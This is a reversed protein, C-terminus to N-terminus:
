IIHSNVQEETPISPQAGKKTCAISAAKSGYAAADEISNGNSIMACLGGCFTDGAATTDVVDVKICPYIKESTKNVIKYGRGGLTVILSDAYSLLRDEGGLLATESENTVIINCYKLYKEIQKDVPAPNLVVKMGKSSAQKLAYGIVDVPNELQALFIDGEDAKSLFADVDAKGLLDNAGKDIIIRNDGDIVVVVAVGTPANGVIKVCDANVGVSKLYKLYNKGQEDDGVCGCMYVKGSLKSCAVAQNAGKGGYATFFGNGCVTEGREPMRQANIVLDNNLSGLVFIKKKMNM